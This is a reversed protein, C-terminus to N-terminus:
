MRHPLGPGAGAHGKGEGPPQMLLQRLNLSFVHIAQKAARESLSSRLERELAPHILRNYADKAAEALVQFDSEGCGLHRLTLALARQSDVEVSVKLLGEREGRDLALIRHGPIKSVGKATIPTCRMYM